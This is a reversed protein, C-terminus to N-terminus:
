WDRADIKECDENIAKEWEDAEDDTLAGSTKGLIAKRDLGQVGKLSHIYGAVQELVHPPLSKLDEVALELTSM